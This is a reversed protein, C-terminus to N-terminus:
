GPPWGLKRGALLHYHVHDVAQGANAGNNVVLRFGSELVGLKAALDRAVRHIDGFLGFDEPKFDTVRALHKKPVILVHVPAQPHIDKFALVSADEFVVDAPIERRIIRCFICDAM